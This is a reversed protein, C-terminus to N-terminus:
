QVSVTVTATNSLAGAQDRVTYKFTEKGRFKLKPSYSVTGDANVAVTGGKNPAAAISVSAPSLNGDVDSDNALVSILIPTYSTTKRMAATASDNKVVPPSNASANVTISVTAISSYLAGDYARYGFSDSGSFGTNPTYNFSGDGNLVLSGSATGGALVATLADGDADIDNGLVGPATLNLTAGAAMSYTNSTAAPARNLDAVSVSFSQIAAQGNADTVRVTVGHTGAQNSDPTWTILGGSVDILMGTPAVDLAYGLVDGDADSAIVAYNYLSGETATTPPVSTIVPASGAAAALLQYAAQADVLGYGFSNDEGAVGLDHASQILAAELQAISAGPFAGALLAMAGAAHPAAYSTGSVVAYLPLGGFSLDATNINVGPAVLNPYVTGDCASEGRSSFSAIAQTADIAGAAFAPTNNAPSLSTLPAPGDNGAAFAVAIGATKLADIDASFESICQGATGKLGWSANVVDPADVTGLDGDPDLLWQFALHIDSYSAMGADNYLKAAIWRAAPAMGIATGGTAGGVMISMTQTGHGNSDHPTPHEGHPDNWSNSGGRWQAGLDPHVYDVGTDMNAVVVGAGNYGLAWLEPTHVMNLNWEPPATSGTTTVPAQLTSDLRISEIGPRAALKRITSANSTVALGNIVWLERLRTAGQNQLFVRHVAQTAVAKDRLAKVLKTNRKSRDALKFLRSDVKDSLSVIVALEDQPARLALEAALDPAIVAAQSIASFLCGLMALILTCRMSKLYPPKM